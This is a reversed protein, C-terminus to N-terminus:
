KFAGDTLRVKASAPRIGDDDEGTQKLLHAPVPMLLKDRLLSECLWPVFKFKDEHIEKMRWKWLAWYYNGIIWEQRQRTKKLAKLLAKRGKAIPLVNEEIEKLALLPYWPSHGWKDPHLTKFLSAPSVERLTDMLVGLLPQLKYAGCGLLIHQLSMEDGCMCFRGMDSKPLRTGYYRHGLVQAGNMEKWLVEKLGEPITLSWVKSIHSGPDLVIGFMNRITVTWRDSFNGFKLTNTPAQVRARMTLKTLYDLPQHCLVPSTDIWGALIMITRINFVRGSVRGENALRDALNNMTDSDHAKAKMFKIRGTRDRLLYLLFQLLPTPPGRSMHRPANGWGDQEMALLSGRLLGLVFTSDTHVVIHADRWALLCLVIAAVEAVNNSLVAGTLSVKDSLQLGTVWASGASCGDTGNDKASGDMWVHIDKDYVIADCLCPHARVVPTYDEMPIRVRSAKYADRIMRGAIISRPATFVRICGLPGMMGPWINVHTNKPGSGYNELPSWTSNEIANKMASITKGLGTGQLPPPAYLHVVKKVGIKRLKLLKLFRQSSPRPVAPHNLVPAGMRAELSPAACALDIGFRRATLFAQSVWDQLLSPKTYAQQLFPNMGEYTGARSTFSVMKLDMWTWQKWPVQQDGTVLDSLFKLDAAYKRTTLSPNNLGGEELSAELTNYAMASFKGRMFNMIKGNIKRLMSLPIGDAEKWKWKAIGGM